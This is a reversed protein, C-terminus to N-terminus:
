DRVRVPTGAGPALQDIITNEDVVLNIAEEDDNWLTLAQEFQLVAGYEADMVTQNLSTANVVVAFHDVQQSGDGVLYVNNANTANLDNSLKVAVCNIRDTIHHDSEGLKAYQNADPTLAVRQKGDPRLIVYSYQVDRNVFEGDGNGAEDLRQQVIPLELDPEQKFSWCTDRPEWDPWLRLTPSFVTLGNVVAREIERLQISTERDAPALGIVAGSPTLADRLREVVAIPELLESLSNAFVVLDYENDPTFAEATTRHITTHFNRHTADTMETLIEAMSDTPEIAEYGILADSPLFDHLGLMPGGVGAGVDLIRLQRDLLGAAALESVVYQIAAYYDPLHYIAYGAATDPSYTVERDRFYDEKLQRIERRLREGSEGHQWEPGYRAALIDKLVALYNAPFADVPTALPDVPADPVPTFRGDDREIVGLDLAAERLVQSVAAPHPDGAVYQVLEDPDLPRVARLYKAAELIATRQDPTM